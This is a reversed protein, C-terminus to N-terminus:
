QRLNILNIKKENIICCVPRQKNNILLVSSDYCSCHTHSKRNILNLRSPFKNPQHPKTDFDNASNQFRQSGDIDWLM